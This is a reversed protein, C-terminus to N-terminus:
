RNPPLMWLGMFTILGNVPLLAFGFSFDFQSKFTWELGFCIIPSLLAV